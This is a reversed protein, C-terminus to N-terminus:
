SQTLSFDDAYVNGQAYWGHIYITISTQSSATTFTVSLQTYSSSSVWNLAGNQVGIYAYPGDVYASLTYTTNAQVTITQDCEGTTSNSPTVQLAHSGSHVPSTVVTDGSQCSWGSLNGTEFGPNTVLNNGSPTPTPTPTSTGTPTPTPTSTKTPTPTPTPGGGGSSGTTFPEWMDTFEYTSQ